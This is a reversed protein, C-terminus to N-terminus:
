ERRRPPAHPRLDDDDGLNEDIGASRWRSRYAPPVDAAPLLRELALALAEREEPDPEPSVLFDV